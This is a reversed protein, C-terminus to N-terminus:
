EALLDMEELKAQLQAEMLEKYNDPLSNQPVEELPLYLLPDVRVGDQWVEFHLHPGTTRVGAGPTGPMAGTKGLVQGRLVPDGIRVSVESVHGYLTMVGKDHMVSIYAYKTSNPDFVVEKVIGEAPAFILSGQNARIDLAHHQVGFAAIYGDDEFYATLGPTPAIPWSLNLLRSAEETADAQMESQLQIVLTREDEQLANLNTEYSLQLAEINEEYSEIETLLEKANSGSSDLMAQLLDREDETEELINRKLDLDAQLSTLQAALNEDLHELEEQKTEIEVQMDELSQSLANLEEIHTQSSAEMIDLYTLDQLTSSVSDESALVKIPNVQGNDYYTERKVYLLAMFEGLLEKQEEIQVELEAVQLKLDEIEMKRQEKQGKVNLIQDQVNAVQAELESVQKTMDDVAARVEGLNAKAVEVNSQLLFYRYQVESMKQRLQLLTTGEQLSALASESLELQQTDFPAAYVLPFAVNGAFIAVLCLALASRTLRYPVFAAFM